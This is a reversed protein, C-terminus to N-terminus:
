PMAKPSLGDALELLRLFVTKTDADDFEGDVACKDRIEQAVSRLVSGAEAAVAQISRLQVLEACAEDIREDDGRCSAFGRITALERELALNLNDM